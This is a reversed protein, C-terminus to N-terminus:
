KRDGFNIQDIVFVFILAAPLTVPALAVYFVVRVAEALNAPRYGKLFEFATFLANALYCGLCYALLSTSLM